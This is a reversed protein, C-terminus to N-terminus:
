VSEPCPCHCGMLEPQYPTDPKGQWWRFRDALRTHYGNKAYSPGNYGRAFAAWNHARLEDDLGEAKIFRVMALLQAAEDDAFAAIMDQPREWGAALHNFGMVQGLGWSASRCAAAEDIACAAEFRPYSDRPYPKLGWKYYALGANVARGRKEPDHSLERYFVHPEFLMVVRGQADFGRGRSEVDLLAHIEDEGVNIAYGIRPIDLDDLRRAAGKTRVTM